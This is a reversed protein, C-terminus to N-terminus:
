EKPPASYTTIYSPSNFMSQLAAAKSEFLPAFREVYVTSNKWVEYSVPGGWQTIFLYTEEKIPRLLRYAIVADNSDLLSLTNLAKEEFVPRDDSMIPMNYFTFFGKQEFQGKQAIVEFKRPVAFISKKDSEHLVVSNGNGHLLILPHKANKEILKEMYDPTGSTVYFNM